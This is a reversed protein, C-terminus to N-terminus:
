RTLINIENAMNIFIESFGRNDTVYLEEDGFDELAFEDVLNHFASADKVNAAFEQDWIMWEMLNKMPDSGANWGLRSLAEKVTIDNKAHNVSAQLRRKASKKIADM